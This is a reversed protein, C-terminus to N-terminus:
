YDNRRAECMECKWDYKNKTYGCKNCTFPKEEIFLGIMYIIAIITIISCIVIDKTEM